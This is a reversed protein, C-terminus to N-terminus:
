AKRVQPFYVGVGLGHVRRGLGLDGGSKALSM